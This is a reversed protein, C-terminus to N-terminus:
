RRLSFISIEDNWGLFGHLFFFGLLPLCLIAKKCVQCVYDLIKQRGLSSEHLLVSLLLQSLPWSSGAPYDTGGVTIPFVQLHELAVCPVRLWGERQFLLYWGECSTSSGRRGAIPPRLFSSKTLALGCVRSFWTIKIQSKKIPLM